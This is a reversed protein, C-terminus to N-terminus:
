KLNTSLEYIKLGEHVLKIQYEMYSLDELNRYLPANISSNHYSFLASFTRFLVSSIRNKLIQTKAGPQKKKYSSPLAHETKKYFNRIAYVIRNGKNM